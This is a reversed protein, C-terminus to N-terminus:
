TLVPNLLIFLALYIGFRLVSRRQSLVPVSSLIASLLYRCRTGSKLSHIASFLYHFLISCHQPDMVNQPPDPDASGHRQNISGSGEKKTMSRWSALLFSIKYCLKKQKHSKSAVNVDNKLSLFEFLTM